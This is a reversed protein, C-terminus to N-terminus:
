MESTVCDANKIHDYSFDIHYAVLNLRNTKNSIFYKHLLIDIWPLMFYLKRDSSNVIGTFDLCDM